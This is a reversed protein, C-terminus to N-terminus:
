AHLSGLPPGRSSRPSLIFQPECVSDAVPAWQVCPTHNVVVLQPSAAPGLHSGGICFACTVDAKPNALHLSHTAVGFQGVVFLLCALVAPWPNRRVHAGFRM